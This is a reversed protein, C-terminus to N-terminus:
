MSACTDLVARTLATPNRVVDKGTLAGPVAVVGLQGRVLDVSGLPQASYGSGSRLFICSQGDPGTYVATAPVTGTATPTAEAVRVGDFQETGASAATPNSGPPGAAVNGIAQPQARTVTGAKQAATLFAYVSAVSGAPVPLSALPLEKNGALLSVAGGSSALPEGTSADLFSVRTPAAGVAVVPGGVTIDQGLTATVTKVITASSPLFAVYGLSFVGTASVGLLQRELLRVGRQTAPGYTSSAGSAPMLGLGVLYHGLAAVDAGRDGRQLNRFLPAQSPFALVPVGDVHVIPSGATLRTGVKADLGTVVGARRVAVEAPEPSEVRLSVAQGEPAVRAGVPVFSPVEAAM